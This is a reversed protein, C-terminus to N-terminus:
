RDRVWRVFGVADAKASVMEGHLFHVQWFKGDQNIFRTATWYGGISTHPFIRTNTAPRACRLEVLSSLEALEPLRWGEETTLAAIAYPLARAEGECHDNAWQQGLSCRSWRLGSHRDTVSGDHNDHFRSTPASPSIHENCNQALALPNIASMVLAAFFLRTVTM